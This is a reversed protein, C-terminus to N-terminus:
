RPLRRKDRWERSTLHWFPCVKCKYASLPPVTKSRLSRNGGKMKAAAKMAHAPGPFEFKGTQCM